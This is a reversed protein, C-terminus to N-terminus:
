QVKQWVQWRLYMPASQLSQGTSHPNGFQILCCGLVLIDDTFPTQAHQLQYFYPPVFIDNLLFRNLILKAGACNISSSIFILFSCNLIKPPDSM